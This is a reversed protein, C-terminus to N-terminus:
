NMKAYGFSVTAPKCLIVVYQYDFLGIGPKIASLNFVKAGNTTIQAVELGSTKVEAGNTANALYVFTGLAFSTEFDDSLQLFLIENKVYLTAVGEAKYGGSSIFTGARNGFTLINSKVHESKAHIDVVGEELRMVIGKDSVSILSSNESFWEITRGTLAEGNINEVSVMLQIEEGVALTTTGGPALIKIRAISNEDAVVNVQMANSQTNGKLATIVAQGASNSQILGENVSAIAPNSSIWEIQDTNTIKGYQDYYTLTPEFSTGVMLAIQGPSIEIREGIVPDELNDVGICAQFLMTIFFFCVKARM